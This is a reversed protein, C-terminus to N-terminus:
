MKFLVIPFMHNVNRSCNAHLLRYRDVSICHKASDFLVYILEIGKTCTARYRTQKVIRECKVVQISCSLITERNM